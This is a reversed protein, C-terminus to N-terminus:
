IGLFGKSRTATRWRRLEPKRRGEGGIIKEVFEEGKIGEIRKRM